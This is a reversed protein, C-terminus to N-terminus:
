PTRRTLTAEMLSLNKSGATYVITMVYQNSNIQWYTETGGRKAPDGLVWFRKTIAKEGVWGVGEVRGWQSHQLVLTYHSQGYALKGRYQLTLPSQPELQDPFIFKAAMTFWDDSTWSVLIRGSVKQQSQNPLFLSGEAAWDGADVFFTHGAAQAVM